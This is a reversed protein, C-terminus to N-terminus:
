GRKGIDNRQWLLMLGVLTLHPMQHLKTTTVPAVLSTWGGTAIVTCTEGLEQQIRVVLGDILSAFGFILGSQLSAVTNKGVVSNPMVLETHPLKSARSFLSDAAIRLGPAIPGGIFQGQANVVSFTTATGCDVVIVPSEYADVAAVVNAIRDAGVDRPSDVHVPIGTKVGPGVVLPVIGLMNVSLDMLVRVVSPVVSSIAVGGLRDKTFGVERFLASLAMAFDDQTWRLDTHIRFYHILETREFVGISINSNGVDLALVCAM